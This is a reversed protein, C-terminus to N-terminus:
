HLLNLNLYLKERNIFHLQLAINKVVQSILQDLLTYFLNTHISLLLTLAFDTQVVYIIYM